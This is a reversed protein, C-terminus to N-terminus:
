NFDIHETIFPESNSDFLSMAAEARELARIYKPQQAKLLIQDQCSHRRESSRQKTSQNFMAEQNLNFDLNVFQGEKTLHCLLRYRECLSELTIGVGIILLNPLNQQVRYEQNDIYAEVEKMNQAQTGVIAVIWRQINDAALIKEKEETLCSVVAKALDRSWGQESNEFAYSLEDIQSKKIKTNLCKQELAITQFPQKGSRMTILGFYDQSNLKEFVQYRVFNFLVDHVYVDDNSLEMIVQICRQKAKFKQGLAELKTMYSSLLLGIKGAVRTLSDLARKMLREEVQRILPNSLSDEYYLRAKNLNSEFLLDTVHYEFYLGFVFLLHQLLYDRTFFWLGKGFPKAKGLWQTAGSDQEEQYGDSHIYAFIKTRLKDLAAKICDGSGQEKITQYILLEVQILKLITTSYFQQRVNIFLRIDQFTRSREGRRSKLESYFNGEHKQLEVYGQASTQLVILEIQPKCSSVQRKVLVRNKIRSIM